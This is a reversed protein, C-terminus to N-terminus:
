DRMKTVSIKQYLKDGPRGISGPLIQEGEKVFFTISIPLVPMSQLFAVAFVSSMTITGGKRDPCTFLLDTLDVRSPIFIIEVIPFPHLPPQAPTIRWNRIGTVNILGSGEHQKVVTCKGTYSFHDASNDIDTIKLESEEMSVIFTGADWYTVDGLVTGASGLISNEILVKYRDGVVLVKCRRYITMFFNSSLEVNKIEVRITVPNIDPVNQPAHYLMSHNHSNPPRSITGNIADGNPILNVVWNVANQNQEGFYRALGTLIQNFTLDRNPFQGPVVFLRIMTENGIKLKKKIAYLIIDFTTAFESFHLTTSTITKAITDLMPKEIRFWSGKEDQTSISMMQPSGDQADEETYHFVLQAPKLFHLGSPEFRYTKGFGSAALNTVPQVSIITESTLAGAPIILETKKDSSVIRGGNKGITESVAEGDPKGKPTPAFLALSDKIREDDQGYSILSILLFTFVIIKKM